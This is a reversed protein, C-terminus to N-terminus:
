RRVLALVDVEYDREAEEWRHYQTRGSRRVRGSVAPRGHCYRELTSLSSDGLIRLLTLPAVGQRWLHAVATHRIDQASLPRIGAQEARKRVIGHVGGATMHEGAVLGGKNLPLFLRGPAGGRMAVWGAVADAARPGMLVTRDQRGTGSRIMLSPPEHVWDGPELAVLETARMGTAYLACLMALDRVGGASRDCACASFLASLERSTAIRGLPSPTAPVNRVQRVAHYQGFGVMGLDYGTRAVGRIAALGVNITGPSIGKGLMRERVREVEEATVEHWAIVQPESGLLAAVARLRGLMVPRTSPRLQGLYEDLPRWPLPLQAYM